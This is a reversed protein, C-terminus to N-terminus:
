YKKRVYAGVSLSFFVVSISIGMFVTWCPEWVCQNFIRYISMSTLYYIMETGGMPFSSFIFEAAANGFFVSAAKWGVIFVTGMVETGAPDKTKASFFAVVSITSVMSVIGGAVAYGLAQGYTLNSIAYITMMQMSSRMGELGFCAACAGFFLGTSALFLFIGYFEAVAIRCIALGKRGHMATRFILDGGDHCSGSFMPAAFFAAIVLVAMQLICYYEFAKGWFSYGEYCSFPLKVSANMKKAKQNQANHAEGPYFADIMKNIKEARIKYYDTALSEPMQNPSAYTKENFKRYKSELEGILGFLKQSNLFDQDYRFTDSIPDYHSKHVQLVGELKDETVQGSLM